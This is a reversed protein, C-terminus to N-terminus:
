SVAVSSIKIQSLDQRHGMTKMYNKRKKFKAGFVKKGRIDGLVKAEIKVNALYPQGILVKEGDALLLVKDFTIDQEKQINLKDVSIVADNEVRYQKGSIEVIAYM